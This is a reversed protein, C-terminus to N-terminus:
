SIWDRSAHTTNQIPIVRPADAPNNRLRPVWLIDVESNFIFSICTFFFLGRPEEVSNCDTLTLSSLNRPTCGHQKFGSLNKNSGTSLFIYDYCRNNLFLFRWLFLQKLRSSIICSTTIVPVPVTANDFVFLVYWCCCCYCCCCCCCCCCHRAVVVAVCVLPLMQLCAFIVCEDLM